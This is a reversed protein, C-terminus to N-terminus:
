PLHVWALCATIFAVFLGGTTYKLRMVAPYDSTEGRLGKLVNWIYMGAVAALPLLALGLWTHRLALTAAILAVGAPYCALFCRRVGALGYSRAFTRDGRRADDAVQYVQSAPYLSLLVLGAGLSATLAESGPMGPGAALYGMLFLNVGNGLGIVLLSKQPHGKWRTEPASYLWFLGMSLAYVAVSAWGVLSALVLGLAQVLWSTPRTWPALPPPRRLGGIPGEDRDWFSNYVTAGGLLLLHVNAFQVLFPGVRLEPQYLGALLYAGSILLQYPWRLHLVFSWADRILRGPAARSALTLSM